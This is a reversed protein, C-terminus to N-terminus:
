NMIEGILRSPATGSEAENLEFVYGAISVIPLWNEQGWFTAFQHSRYQSAKL